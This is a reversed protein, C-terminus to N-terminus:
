SAQARGSTLDIEYEVTDAGRHVLGAGSNRLLGAAAANDAAVLATFRRIGEQCARGSLRALLETGLGRGQWDDVITVAIEAAGPDERDRVYRAIGVGGGRVHDVAGPAEHDHHDIGTYYRLEAEKLTNKRGLFRRRRSRESLQIFGDALLAADTSRVPRILVASGDRLVVQGAVAAATAARRLQRAQRLERAQRRAAASATLMATRERAMAAQFDPHIMM